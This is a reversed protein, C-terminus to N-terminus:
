RCRTQALHEPHTGAFRPGPSTRAAQFSQQTAPISGGSDLLGPCNPGNDDRAVNGYGVTTVITMAWWVAQAFSTFTAHPAGHGAQLAALSAAYVLLVVACGTYVAAGGRTASRMTKEAIGGLTTLRLPARGCRSTGGCSAEGTAKGMADGPSTLSALISAAVRSSATQEVDRNCGSQRRANACFCGNGM